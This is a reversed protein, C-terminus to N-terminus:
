DLDILWVHIPFDDNKCNEIGMKVLRTNGGILEYEGDLKMVIPLEIVIEEKSFMNDVRKRRDATFTKYDEEMQTQEKFKYETNNIEKSAIDTIDFEKGSNAKNIWDNYDTFVEPYREAEPWENEFDPNKFTVTKKGIKYKEETDEKNEKNEEENIFRRWSEVLLQTYKRKM